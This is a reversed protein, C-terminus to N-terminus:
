TTDDYKKKERSFPAFAIFSFSIASSRPRDLGGNMGTDSIHSTTRM